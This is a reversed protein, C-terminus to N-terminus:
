ITLFHSIVGKLGIGILVLGGTIEAKTKGVMGIYTGFVCGLFSICFTVVGIELVASNIVISEDFVFSVGVGLADISTAVALGLMTKWDTDVKEEPSESAERIMGIGIWSLIALIIWHSYADAWSAFYSGLHYGIFPMLAQFVGFWTGYRLGGRFKREEPLRIGGCVSVAFADMALSVSLLFFTLAGM